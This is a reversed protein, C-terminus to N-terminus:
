AAEEEFGLGVLYDALRDRSTGMYGARRYVSGDDFVAAAREAEAVKARADDVHQRLAASIVEEYHARQADSLRCDIRARLTGRQLDFLEEGRRRWSKGYIAVLATQVRHWLMTNPWKSKM